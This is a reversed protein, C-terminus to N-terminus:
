FIKKTSNPYKTPPLGTYKRFADSFHSSSSFGLEFATQTVSYKMKTLMQKALEIKLSLIYQHPPAGTIEKFSRCFHRPSLEVIKALTSLSIDSSLNAHIYEDIRRIDQASLGNSQHQKALKSYTGYLYSILAVSATEGFMKGNPCGGVADNLMSQALRTIYFDKSAIYPPLASCPTYRFSEDEKTLNNVKNRDIHICIVKFPSHVDVNYMEHGSEVYLFTGPTLLKKYNKKDSNWTVLSRGQTVLYLNTQYNNSCKPNFHIPVKQHSIEFGNWFKGTSTWDADTNISHKKFKDQM